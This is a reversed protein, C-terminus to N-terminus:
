RLSEMSGASGNNGGPPSLQQTWTFWNAIIIIATAKTAQYNIFHRVRLLTKLHLGKKSPWRTSLADFQCTPTTLNFCPLTRKPDFASM